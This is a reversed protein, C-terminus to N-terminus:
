LICPLMSIPLPPIRAVCQHVEHSYKKRIKSIRKDLPRSIVINLRKTVSNLDEQKYGTYFEATDDWDKNSHLMRFALLLSAAAVRSELVDIMEDDLLSSELIYRALTLTKQDSGTCRAFRRLFGYSLPYRIDFDLTTLMDLEFKFVQESTFANYSQTLLDSIDIPPLREDFKVAILISTMYLLQLQARPVTKQMLYQDALKVAMYLSEHYLGFTDQLHVLWDILRARDQASIKRGHIEDDFYKRNRFKLERERDYIFSEWAYHPECYIDHILLQDHDVVTPKLGEPTFYKNVSPPLQNTDEQQKHEQIPQTSRDEIPQLITKHLQQKNNDEEDDDITIVLINEKAGGQIKQKKNTPKQVNIDRPKLAVRFHDTIKRRKNEM